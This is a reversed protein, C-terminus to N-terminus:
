AENREEEERWDRLIEDVIKYWRKCDRTVEARMNDLDTGADLLNWITENAKKNVEKLKEIEVRLREIENLSIRYKEVVEASHAILWEPSKDWILWKERSIWEPSLIEYKEKM